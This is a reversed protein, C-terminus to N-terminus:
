SRPLPEGSTIFGLKEAVDSTKASRDIWSAHAYDDNRETIGLPKQQLAIDQITRQLL